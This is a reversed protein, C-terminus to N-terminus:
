STHHETGRTSACESVVWVSACGYIALYYYFSFPHFIWYFDVEDGFSKLGIQTHAKYYFSFLSLYWQIGNTEIRTGNKPSKITSHEANSTRKTKKELSLMELRQLNRLYDILMLIENKFRLMRSNASALFLCLFILAQARMLVVTKRLSKWRRNCACRILIKWKM